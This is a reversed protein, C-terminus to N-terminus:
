SHRKIFNVIYAAAEEPTSANNCGEPGFLEEHEEPKLGFHREFAFFSVDRHNTCLVPYGDRNLLFERQLDRRAVYHGLACAPSGCEKEGSYGFLAMTFM